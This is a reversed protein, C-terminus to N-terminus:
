IITKNQSSAWKFASPSQGALKRFFKGLSSQDAFGYEYALQKMSKGSVLIDRKIQTVLISSIIEKAKHGGKIKCVESLYKPTINLQEAYFAVEHEQKVHEEILNIFNRFYNDSMTYRAHDPVKGRQLEVGAELLLIGRFIIAAMEVSQTISLQDYLCINRMFNLLMEWENPDTVTRVPNHTLAAILETPIGMTVGLSFSDNVLLVWAHFDPSMSVMREVMVHNLLVRSHKKIHLKILNVEAISEGSDCVIVANYKTVYPRNNFDTLSKIEFTRYGKSEIKPDESFNM